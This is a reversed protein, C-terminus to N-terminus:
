NNLENRHCAAYIWYFQCIWDMNDSVTLCETLRIINGM